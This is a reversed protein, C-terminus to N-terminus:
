SKVKNKADTGAETANDVATDVADKADNAM